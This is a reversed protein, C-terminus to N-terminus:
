PLAVEVGKRDSVFRVHWVYLRLDDAGAKKGVPLQAAVRVLYSAGAPMMIDGSPQQDPPRSGGIRGIVQSEAPLTCLDDPVGPQPMCRGRVDEPVLSRRVFLDAPYDLLAPGSGRNTLVYDVYPYTGDAPPPTSRPLPRDSTGAKVAGLGYAYGEPATLNLVPGTGPSPLSSADPSASSAAAPRGGDDPRLAVVGIAIAAIGAVGALTGALAASTGRRRRARHRRHSRSM